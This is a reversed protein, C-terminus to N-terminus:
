NEIIISLVIMRSQIKEFVNSYKSSVDKQLMNRLGDSFKIEPSIVGAPLYFSFGVGGEIGWDYKNLHIMSNSNRERNNSSLDIDYKIGGFLYVKFNGVRDSNFKVQLPLSIITTPLKQVQQSPLGSALKTSDLVFTLTKYGSLSLQPNFRFDFHDNLRFTGMLGLSIGKSPTMNTALVSDNAVFIPAHSYHLFSSNYGLMLGLHFPKDDQELYNASRELQSFSFVPILLILIVVLYIRKVFYHM